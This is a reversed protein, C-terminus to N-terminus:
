KNRARLAEEISKRQDPTLGLESEILDLTESRGETRGKELGEALGKEERKRLFIEALM